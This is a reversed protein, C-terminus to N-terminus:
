QDNRSLPWFDHRPARLDNIINNVERKDDKMCGFLETETIKKTKKKIPTLIARAKGHYLVEM